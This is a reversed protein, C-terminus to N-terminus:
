RIPVPRFATAGDGGSANAAGRGPRAGLTLSFVRLNLSRPDRSASRPPDRDSALVLRNRGKALALPIDYVRRAGPEVTITGVLRDNLLVRLEQAHASGFEAGLVADDHRDPCDILVELERGTWVWEERTDGEVTFFGRGLAVSGLGIRDSPELRGLSFGEARALTEEVRRHGGGLLPRFGDRRLVFRWKGDDLLGAENHVYGNSVSMGIRKDRLYYVAWLSEWFNLGSIFVDNVQADRNFRELQGLELPVRAVHRSTFHKRWRQGANYELTLISVVAVLIPVTVLWRVATRSPRWALLAPLGAGVLLPLWFYVYTSSKFFAYSYDTRYAIVAAGMSPVAILLAFVPREVRRLGYAALTALAVLLVLWWWVPSRASLLGGVEVYSDPMPWGSRMAGGSEIAIVHSWLFDAIRTLHFPNLAAIAAVALAARTIRNVAEGRQWATWGTYAALVFLAFPILELYSTVIGTGFIVVLAGERWPRGPAELYPALVVCMALLFGTGMVQPMFGQLAIYLAYPNLVAFAMGAALGLGGLGLVHRGFAWVLCFQLALAITQLLSFLRTPDVHLVASLFSLEFIPLWRPNYGLQIDVNNDATAHWRPGKPLPFLGHERVWQASLVYSFPDNNALTFTNLRGTRDVAPALLVGVVVVVGLIPVVAPALAGPDGRRRQRLWAAALLALGAAVAAVWSRGVDIGFAGFAALILTTQVMGIWPAFIGARRRLPPPLLLRTAGWGLVYLTAIVLPGYLLLDTV